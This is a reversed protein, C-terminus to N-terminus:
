RCSEPRRGPCDGVRQAPRGNPHPLGAGNEELWDLAKLVRRIAVSRLIVPL